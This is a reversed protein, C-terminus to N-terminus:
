VVLQVFCSCDLLTFIQVNGMDVISKNSYHLLVFNLVNGHWCKFFKNSSHLLTFIKVKELCVSSRERSM